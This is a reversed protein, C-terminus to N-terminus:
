RVVRRSRLRGDLKLTMVGFAMGSFALVRGDPSWSGRFVHDLPLLRRNKGDADIVALQSVHVASSEGFNFAIRGEGQSGPAAGAGAAAILVMVAAAFSRAM